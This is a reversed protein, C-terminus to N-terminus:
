IFRKAGKAVTVAILKRWLWEMPGQTFHRLWLLSFLLNVLWIAPVMALLQLRDFQEYGRWSYFLLSCILTQLLYNSLAMRGISALAPGVRWRCLTSWCGYWLALYGIAQVPAALENPIQLLFGCWRYAWHLQWQLMVFPLQLLLGIPILWAAYRRYHQETFHGALWGSRMLAAGMLMNGALQWGYQVLLALLNASLLDLRNRWAELGGRLKWYHEYQLAAAGPQWLAGPEPGSFIALLLLMAIGFLYLVMGTKLLNATASADRIFRWFLLGVIGYALLIDGDWFFLGHIVGFFALWGLRIAIWGSGRSLLLQLGAGFLLAFMSLFKAQAVVSLLSWVWADAPTVSGLYNPNIYAAKPLAFATINLLLIGLVAMGRAADLMAIRRGPVGERPKMM